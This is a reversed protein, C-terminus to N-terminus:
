TTDNIMAFKKLLSILPRHPRQRIIRVASALIAITEAKKKSSSAIMRFRVKHRSSPTILEVLAALDAVFSGIDM